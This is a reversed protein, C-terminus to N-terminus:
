EVVVPIKVDFTMGEAGAEGMHIPVLIYWNGKWTTISSKSLKYIMNFTHYNAGDVLEIAYDSLFTGNAFELTEANVLTPDGALEFEMKGGDFLGMDEVNMRLTGSISETYNLAASAQISFISDSEVRTNGEYNLEFPFEKSEKMIEGDKYIRFLYSTHFELDGADKTKKWENFNATVDELSKTVTELRALVSEENSTRQKGEYTKNLTAIENELWTYLPSPQRNKDYRVQVREGSYIGWQYQYAPAKDDDGCSVFTFVSLCMALMFFIKKM